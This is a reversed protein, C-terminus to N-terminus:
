RGLVAIRDPSLIKLCASVVAPLEVSNAERGVASNTVLDPINSSGNVHRVQQLKAAAGRLNKALLFYLHLWNTASRSARLTSVRLGSPSNTAM